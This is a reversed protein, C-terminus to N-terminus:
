IKEPSKPELQQIFGLILFRSQLEEPNTNNVKKIILEELVMFRQHNEVLHIFRVLNKLSSRVNLEVPVSIIREMYKPKETRSSEIRISTQRSYSELIKQLAAAALAPKKQDLFRRTLVADIRRTAKTKQKYYAEQNLIEYYKSIFFIKNEIQQQIERQKLYIPKAVLVGILYIGLCVGGITLAKKDKPSLNKIM